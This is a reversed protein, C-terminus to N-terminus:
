YEGRMLSDLRGARLAEAIESPRMHRLQERSTIRGPVGGGRAGQDASGAPAAPESTAVAEAAEVEAPNLLHDLKRNKLLGAVDEPAMTRLEDRTVPIHNADGHERLLARTEPSLNEFDERAITV